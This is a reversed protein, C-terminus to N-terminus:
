GGPPWGLVGGLGTGVPPYPPSSELLRVADLPDMRADQAAYNVIKVGAQGVNLQDFRAARQSAKQYRREPSQLESPVSASAMSGSPSSTLMRTVVSGSIPVSEPGGAESM